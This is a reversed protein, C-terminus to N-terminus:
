CNKERKRDKEFQILFNQESVWDEYERKLRAVETVRAVAEESGQPPLALWLRAKDKANGITGLQSLM